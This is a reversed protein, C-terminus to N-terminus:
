KELVIFDIQKLSPDAKEVKITVEEGLTFIKGTREGMLRHYEPQFVYYDDKLDQLRVLGEITNPLEVFFGFSSVGSIRGAYIEGIHKSMYEAMKMKTVEREIKEARREAESCQKGIGEINKELYDIAKESLKGNLTKGLYRHVMLDPYRRIPSTFHTYYGAGLAFHGMNKGEYIAQPMTRLMLLMIVREEPKDKLDNMLKQFDEKTPSESESSGLHYGFREIFTRLAKVKDPNPIPHNRFLFPTKLKAIHEAVTENCVLMFEEILRHSELREVLQIEEPFGKKNLIVKAEPFDFNIAGRKQRREDHLIKQLEEMLMLDDKYKLYSENKKTIKGNLLDSVGEYTMRAKSKIMSKFIKYNVVKGEKTIEMECSFTLRTENPVLSCVKNSLNFPLMPIVRDLVYVSTGREKASEDLASKQKVYHSVDAIHVGLLYNGNEKKRLSVADDFDKADDGDITFIREKQLDKRSSLDNGSIRDNIAEAERKVEESFDIPIDYEMIISLIDIGPDGNRGLIKTIEGEPSKGKESWKLIDVSVKDGDAAKNGKRNPIFIDKCLRDNDPVVFGFGNGKQYTGIIKKHGRELIDLIEGERKKEGLDTTLRVWVRDGDLAGHLYRQPIFIDDSTKGEEPVVFGFGRQHGQLIGIIKENDKGKKYAGTQVKVVKQKKELEKLVNNLMQRDKKKKLGILTSLEDFDMQRYKPDNLLRRVIKKLEKTKM